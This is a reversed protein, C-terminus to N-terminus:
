ASGKSHLTARYESMSVGFDHYGRFQIGLTDFDADASEIVPTQVGDLFCVSASAFIAPDPALFWGTASYGPYASNSLEPVVVPKFSDYHINTTPTKTSATTDRRETSIYLVKATAELEPPVIVKSPSLAMMNGDPGSQKRFEILALNLGTETLTTTAGEIYNERAATWFAAGDVAALWATWFERNVKVACGMGLRRRVADFAGLDDNIIDQRTLAFMKAYTKAQNTFSEQDATGHTIEGAPGVEDYAFNATLRFSTVTKFDNVSQISAVEKWAQPIAYFGSLLAKHGLNTLMTAITHTSFAAQIIEKLNSRGVHSRGNYGGQRAGHLLLEQIGFGPFKDAAELIEPKFQKELDPLGATRCFAAEIIANNMNTRSGYIPPAKPREARILKVEHDNAAKILKTELWLDSKGNEVAEAKLGNAAQESEAQIESLKGAEIKGNYATVRAQVHEVHKEHAQVVASLNFAPAIARINESEGDFKAQLRAIQNDRLEDPDLGTRAQVWDHFKMTGDKNHVYNAAIATSTKSDAAMAVFSVESLTAKRAVYVPGKLTKGNVTTSVGEGVFEMKDPRAGISAKWPFGQSASAVVQAAENSAGSVIGSLKLSSAGVDVNDAHGVLKTTDHNLLIPLPAKARLGTLDIVVPDSFYGVMMPGGTYATMSFRKPKNEGNGAAQIWDVPRLDFQLLDFQLLDNLM